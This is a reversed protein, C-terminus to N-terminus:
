RRREPLPLVETEGECVIKYIEATLGCAKLRTSVSHVVEM